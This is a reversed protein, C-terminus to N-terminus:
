FRRSARRRGRGWTRYSDCTTLATAAGIARSQTWPAKELLLVEREADIMFQSPVM